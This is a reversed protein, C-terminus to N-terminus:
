KWARNKRFKQPQTCFPCLFEINGKRLNELRVIAPAEGDVTGVSTAQISPALDEDVEQEENNNVGTAANEEVFTSPTTLTTTSPPPAVDVSLLHMKFGPESADPVQQVSMPLADKSPKRITSIQSAHDKCYRLYQRRWTIGRSLRNALWNEEGKPLSSLKPFKNEVHARDWYAYQTELEPLATAARLYRDRPTAKRIKTSLEFLNSTIEAILELLDRIESIEQVRSEIPEEAHNLQGSL